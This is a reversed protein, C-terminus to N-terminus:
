ADSGSLDHIILEALSPVDVGARQAADELRQRAEDVSVHHQEALVGTAVDVAAVEEFRQTSERAREIGTMPLDANTVAEEAAAGFMIALGRSHGTFTTPEAGYLNVSGVVTDQSRIPLSLSSRIGVAAGALAALHWERESLLDADIRRDHHASDECPGGDLYQAGDVLRLKDDTALFTFTLGVDGILAITLGVCGPVQEAVQHARALLWVDVREDGPGIWLRELLARTEPLPDM